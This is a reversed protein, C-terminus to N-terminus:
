NAIKNRLSRKKWPKSRRKSTKRRFAEVAKRWAEVAKDRRNMKAYADGLHDLVAGDPKKDAAAKELQVIAEPVQGLRFLVWGLSDRYAVNDPEANVAKEIMRKARQFEENQDAWLYGLDNLAGEDDPFEDLVQELWEEAQPLDGRSARDSDPQTM